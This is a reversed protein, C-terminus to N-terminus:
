ALAKFIACMGVEGISNGQIRLERLLVDKALVLSALSKTGENGISNYSIDFSLVRKNEKLGECILTCGKPGIKNRSVDLIKISKNNM